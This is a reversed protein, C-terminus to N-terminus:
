FRVSVGVKLSVRYPLTEGYNMSVDDSNPIEIIWSVYAVDGVVAVLNSIVRGYCRALLLNLSRTTLISCSISVRGAELWPVPMFLNLNKHTTRNLLAGTSMPIVRWAKLRRIELM